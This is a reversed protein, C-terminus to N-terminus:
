DKCPQHYAPADNDNAEILGAMVALRRKNTISGRKAVQEQLRKRNDIRQMIKSRSDCLGKIYKDKDESKLKDIREREEEQKKKMKERAESSKKLM